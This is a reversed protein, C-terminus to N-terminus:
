ENLYQPIKKSSPMVKCLKVKLMAPTSSLLSGISDEGSVSKEQFKMKLFHKGKNNLCDPVFCHQIIIGHVKVKGATSKSQRSQDKSDVLSCVRLSMTSSHRFHKEPIGTLVQPALSTVTSYRLVNRIWKLTMQVRSLATPAPQYKQCNLIENLAGLPRDRDPHFLFLIKVIEFSAALSTLFNTKVSKLDQSDFNAKDSNHLLKKSEEQISKMFIKRLIQMSGVMCIKQIEAVNAAESVKKINEVVLVLLYLSRKLEMHWM